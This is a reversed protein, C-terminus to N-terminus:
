VCACLRRSVPDQVGCDTVGRERGEADGEATLCMAPRSTKAASGVVYAPLLGPPGQPDAECGAECDVHERLADCTNLLPLHAASCSRSGRKQCTSTCSDGASGLVVEVNDLSGPPLPKALQGARPSAPVAFFNLVLTTPINRACM